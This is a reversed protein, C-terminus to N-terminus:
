HVFITYNIMEIYLEQYIESKEVSPHLHKKLYTKKTAKLEELREKTFTEFYKILKM